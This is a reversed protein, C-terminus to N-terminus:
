RQHVGHGALVQSWVANLQMPSLYHQLEFDNSRSAQQPILHKPARWVLLTKTRRRGSLQSNPLDVFHSLASHNM